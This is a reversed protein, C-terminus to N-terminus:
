FHAGESSLLMFPYGFFLYVRLLIMNASPLFIYLVLKMPEHFKQRTFVCLLCTFLHIFSVFVSLLLVKSACELEGLFRCSFGSLFEKGDGDSHVFCLRRCLLFLLFLFCKHREPFRPVLSHGWFTIPIYTGLGCDGKGLVEMSVM